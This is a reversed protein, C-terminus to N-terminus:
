HKFIVLLGRDCREDPRSNYNFLMHHYNRRISDSYIRLLNPFLRANSVDHYVLIGEPELLKDYVLEFWEQTRLHDADSFIFQFTKDCTSVYEHEGSNVFRVGDYEPKKIEEPPVGKHDIWNDVVHFSAPSTNYRLGKLIARCSAGAGFGLELVSRPKRSLVLAQVLAAHAEDIAVIKDVQENAYVSM